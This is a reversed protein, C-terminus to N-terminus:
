KNFNYTPTEYGRHRLYDVIVAMTYYDMQLDEFFGSSLGAKLEDKGQDFLHPSGGILPWLDQLEEDTIEEIQKFKQEQM